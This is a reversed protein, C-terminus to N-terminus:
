ICFNKYKNLETENGTEEAELIKEVFDKPISLESVSPMCVTTGRVELINSQEVRNKLYVGDDSIKPIVHERVAEPDDSHNLLFQWLEETCNNDTFTTGDDFTISVFNQKKFINM